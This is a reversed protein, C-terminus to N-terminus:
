KTGGPPNGTSSKVQELEHKAAVFAADLEDLLGPLSAGDSQRARQEIQQALEQVRRAGINGASSKIPHVADAIGALNGAQGASKAAALKEAGYSSFLDIMKVVFARGGLRQLREIAAPDLQSIENM